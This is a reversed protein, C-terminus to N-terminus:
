VEQYQMMLGQLLVKAESGMGSPIVGRSTLEALLTDAATDAAGSASSAAGFTPDFAVPAAAAGFGLGAAGSAAEDKEPTSAASLDGESPTTAGKKAPTSAAAAAADEVVPTSPALEKSFVNFTGDEYLLASPDQGDYSAIGSLDDLKFGTLGNLAWNKTDEDKVVVPLMMHMMGQKRAILEVTRMM